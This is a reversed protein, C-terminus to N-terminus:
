AAASRGGATLLVFRGDREDVRGTVLLAGLVRVVQEAAPPAVGRARARVAVEEWLMRWPLGRPHAALLQEVTRALEPAPPAAPAPPPVLRVHAQGHRSVPVEMVPFPSPM